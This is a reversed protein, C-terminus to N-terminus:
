SFELIRLFIHVTHQGIQLCGVSGKVSQTFPDAGQTGAKLHVCLVFRLSPMSVIRDAIKMGIVSKAPIQPIFKSVM